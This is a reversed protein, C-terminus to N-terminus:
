DEHNVEGEKKWVLITDYRAALSLFEDRMKSSCLSLENLAVKRTNFLIATEIENQEVDKIADIVKKAATFHATVLRQTIQDQLAVKASLNLKVRDVEIKLLEKLHVQAALEQRLESSKRAFKQNVVELKDTVATPDYGLFSRKFKLTVDKM